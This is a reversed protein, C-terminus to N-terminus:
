RGPEPQTVAPVRMLVAAAILREGQFEMYNAVVPQTWAGLQDLPYLAPIGLQPIDIAAVLFYDCQTLSQRAQEPRVLDRPYSLAQVGAWHWVVDPVAAYVCGRPPVIQRLAEITRQLRLYLEPIQRAVDEDRGTLYVRERKYGTLADDLPLAARTVFQALTPVSVALLVVPVAAPALAQMSPIRAALLAAGEISALVLFPVVVVLLRETEQPYPWVLVLLLYGPLYAADLTNRRLRALCGLLAIAIVLSGFWPLAPSLADQWLAGVGRVVRAAEGVLWGGVDGIQLRAGPGQLSTVYSEAGTLSRYGMWATGPVVMAAGALVRSRISLGRQRLLWLLGSAVFPVAAMRALPMLGVLGAVMLVRSDSRRAALACAGATLLVLIPESVPDLLLLLWAPSLIMACVAVGAFVPGRGERRLWLWLLATALLAAVQTLWLAREPHASGGDALALLLPFLPPFRSVRYAAAAEPSPAGDLVGSYFDAYRLYAISDSFLGVPRQGAAIWGGVMAAVGLLLVLVAVSGVRANATLAVKVHM